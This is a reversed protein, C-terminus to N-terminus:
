KFVGRLANRLGGLHNFVAKGLVRFYGAGAALDLIAYKDLVDSTEMLSLMFAASQEDGKWYKSLFSRKDKVRGISKLFHTIALVTFMSDDILGLVLIPDPILDVPSIVYIVALVLSLKAGLPVEKDKLLGIMMLAAHPVFMIFRKAEDLKTEWWKDWYADDKFMKAIEPAPSHHRLMDKWNVPKGNVNLSRRTYEFVPALEKEAEEPAHVLSKVTKQIKVM